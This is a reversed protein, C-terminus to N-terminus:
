KHKELKRIRKEQELIISLLLFAWCHMSSTYNIEGLHKLPKKLLDEYIVRNEPRLAKSYSKLERLIQDSVLRQSYVTHGM